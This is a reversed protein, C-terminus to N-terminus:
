EGIRCLKVWEIYAFDLDEQKREYKEVNEEAEKTFIGQRMITCLVALNIILGCVVEQRM